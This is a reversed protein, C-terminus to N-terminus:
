DKIRAEIRAIEERIAKCNEAFEKRGERARLKARLAELRETLGDM